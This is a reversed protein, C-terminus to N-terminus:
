VEKKSTEQFDSKCSSEMSNTKKGNTKGGNTKIREKKFVLYLYICGIIFLILSQYFKFTSFFVSLVGFIILSYGLLLHFIKTHNKRELERGILEEKNM